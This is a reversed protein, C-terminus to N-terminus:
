CASICVAVSYRERVRLRLECICRVGGVGETTGMCVCLVYWTGVACPSCLEGYAM